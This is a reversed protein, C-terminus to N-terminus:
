RSSTRACYPLPAHAHAAIQAGVAALADAVGDDDGIEDFAGVVDGALDRQREAVAVDM